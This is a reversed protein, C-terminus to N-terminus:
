SKRCIQANEGLCPPWIVEEVPYLFQGLIVLSAVVSILTFIVILVLSKEGSLLSLSTGLGLDSSGQRDTSGLRFFLTQCDIKLLSQYNKM